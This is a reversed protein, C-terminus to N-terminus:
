VPNNWERPSIDSHNFSKSIASAITSPTSCIAIVTASGVQYPRSGARHNTPLEKATALTEGQTGTYFGGYNRRWNGGCRVCCASKGSDDAFIEYRWNRLRKSVTNTISDAWFRRRSSAIAMPCATVTRRWGDILRLIRFDRGWVATRAGM